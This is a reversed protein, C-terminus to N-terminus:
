HGDLYREIKKIKEVPYMGTRDCDGTAVTKFTLHSRRKYTANVFYREM